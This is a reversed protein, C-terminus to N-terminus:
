KRKARIQINTSRNVLERVEFELSKIKSKASTIENQYKKTQILLINIRKQLLERPANKANKDEISQSNSGLNSTRNRGSKKVPEFEESQFGFEILKQELYAIYRIIDNKGALSKQSPRKVIRNKTGKKSHTFRNSEKIRNREVRAEESQYPVGEVITLPTPGASSGEAKKEIDELLSPFGV